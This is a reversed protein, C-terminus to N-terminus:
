GGQVPPMIAIEAQDTIAQDREAWAQDIALLLNGDWDRLAPFEEYLSELLAGLTWERDASLTRELESAGVLDQLSSFFLLRVTM